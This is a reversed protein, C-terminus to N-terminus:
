VGTTPDTCTRRAPRRTASGNWPTTALAVRSTNTACCRFRRVASSATTAPARRARAPRSSSPNAPHTPASQHAVLHLRRPRQLRQRRDRRHRHLAAEGVLLQRRHHLQGVLLRIPLPRPPCRVDIRQLQRAHRPLTDFGVASSERARNRPAHTGSTASRPSSSTATDPTLQGISRPARNSASIRRRASRIFGIFPWGHAGNSCRAASASNANHSGAGASSSCAGVGPAAPRSGPRRHRKCPGASIAPIGIASENNSCNRAFADIVGTSTSSSPATSAIPRAAGAIESFSRRATNSRSARHRTGPQPEVDRSQLDVMQHGPTPVPGVLDRVQGAHAGCVM